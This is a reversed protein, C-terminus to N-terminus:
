EHGLVYRVAGLAGFVDFPNEAIEALNGLAKGFESVKVAGSV